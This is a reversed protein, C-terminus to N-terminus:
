SILHIVIHSTNEFYLHVIGNYKYTTRCSPDNVDKHFVTLAVACFEDKALGHPRLVVMPDDVPCSQDAGVNTTGSDTLLRFRNQPM